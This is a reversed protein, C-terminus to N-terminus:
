FLYRAMQLLLITHEGEVTAPVSADCYLQPLGSAESYGHGGCALRCHEIGRIARTTTVAKLGATLAHCKLVSCIIM